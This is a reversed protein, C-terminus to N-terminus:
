GFMREIGQCNGSYSEVSMDITKVTVPVSRVRDYFVNCKKGMFIMTYVYVRNSLRKSSIVNDGSRINEILHRIDHRNIITDFREQM